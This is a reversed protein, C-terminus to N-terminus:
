YDWDDSPPNAATEEAAANITHDIAGALGPQFAEIVALCIAIEKPDDSQWSDGNESYGLDLELLEWDDLSFGHGRYDIEYTLRVGVVGSVNIEFDELYVNFQGQAGTRDGDRPIYRM